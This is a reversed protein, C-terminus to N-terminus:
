GWVHWDRITRYVTGNRLSDRLEKLYDYSLKEALEEPGTISYDPGTPQWKYGAWYRLVPKGDHNKVYLRAWCGDGGSDHKHAWRSGNIFLGSSSVIPNQRAVAILWGQLDSDQLLKGCEQFIERSLELKQAYQRLETQFFAREKRDLAQQNELRAENRASLVQERDKLADLLEQRFASNEEFIHEVM